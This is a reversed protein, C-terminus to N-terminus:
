PRARPRCSADKRTHHHQAETLQQVTAAIRRLPIFDLSSTDPSLLNFLWQVVQEETCGGSDEPAAARPRRRHTKAPTPRRDLAKQIEEMRAVLAHGKQFGQRYGQLRRHSREEQRMHPSAYAVAEVPLRKQM